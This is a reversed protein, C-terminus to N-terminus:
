NIFETRVAKLGIAETNAFDCEVLRADKLRLGRLNCRAFSVGKLICGEIAVSQLSREKFSLNEILSDPFSIEPEGLLDDTATIKQLDPPINPATRGVPEKTKKRPHQPKM